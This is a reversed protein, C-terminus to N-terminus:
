NNRNKNPSFLFLLQCFLETSLVVKQFAQSSSNSEQVWLTLSFDLKLHLQRVEVCAKQMCGVRCVFVCVCVHMGVCVHVGVGVCVCVCLHECVYVSKYVCVCM